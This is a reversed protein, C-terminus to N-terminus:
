EQPEEDEALVTDQPEESGGPETTESPEDNTTKVDTKTGKLTPVEKGTILKYGDEYLDRMGKKIQVPTLAKKSSEIVKAMVNTVSAFISRELMYEYRDSPTGFGAKGSKSYKNYKTAKKIKRTDDDFTCVIADGIKLSEKAYKIVADTAKYWKQKGDKRECYLNTKGVKVLKM